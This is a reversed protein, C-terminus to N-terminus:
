GGVQYAGGPFGQQQYVVVHILRYQQHEALPIGAHFGVDIRLGDAVLQLQVQLLMVALIRRYVDMGVLLTM